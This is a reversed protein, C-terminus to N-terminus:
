KENQKIKPKNIEPLPELSSLSDIKIGPVGSITCCLGWSPFHVNYGVFQLTGHFKEGDTSTAIFREGLFQRMEPLTNEILHNNTNNNM